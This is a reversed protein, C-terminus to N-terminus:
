GFSLTDSLFSILWYIRWIAACSPTEGSESTCFQNRFFYPLAQVYRPLLSLRSIM